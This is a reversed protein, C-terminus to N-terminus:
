GVYKIHAVMEHHTCNQEACTYITVGSFLITVRACPNSVREVNERQEQKKLIRRPM